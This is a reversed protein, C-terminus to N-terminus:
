RLPIKGSSRLPGHQPCRRRQTSVRLSVAGCVECIGLLEDYVERHALADAAFLALVWTSLLEGEGLVPRWSAARGDSVRRVRGTYVAARVFRDDGPTAMLQSLGALVRDRATALMWKTSPVDLAVNSAAATTPVDLRAAGETILLRGKSADWPTLYGPDLLEARCWAVLDAARWSSRTGEVFALAADRARLQGGHGTTREVEAREENARAGMTLPPEAGETGAGSM